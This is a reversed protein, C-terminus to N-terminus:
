LKQWKAKVELIKLLMEDVISNYNGYFKRRERLRAIEDNIEAIAESRFADCVVSLREDFEEPLRTAVGYKKKLIDSIIIQLCSLVWDYYDKYENFFSLYEIAKSSHTMKELMEFVKFFVRFYTKDTILKELITLSGGCLSVALNKDECDSECLRKCNSIKEPSVPTTEVVRCRSVVTPLLATKSESKLIFKVVSPPEELIKLLKNQAQLVMTHARNVIYFKNELEIPTVLANQTIYNIDNVSVNKEAPFYMVDPLLNKRAKQATADGYRFKVAEYLFCECLEDSLISDAGVFLYAHSLEDNEIDKELEAFLETQKVIDEYM